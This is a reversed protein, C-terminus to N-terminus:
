YSHELNMNFRHWFLYKIQKFSFVSPALVAKNLISWSRFESTVGDSIPAWKYPTYNGRLHFM